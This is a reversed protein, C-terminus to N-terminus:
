PCEPCYRDIMGNVSNHWEWAERKTREYLDEGPGREYGRRILEISGGAESYFEDPVTWRDSPSNWSEVPGLRLRTNYIRDLTTRDGPLWLGRGHSEAWADWGTFGRRRIERLGALIWADSSEVGGNTDRYWARVWGPIRVQLSEQHTRIGSEADLVASIGHDVEKREYVMESPDLMIGFVVYWYDASGYGHAREALALVESLTRLSVWSRRDGHPTYRLVVKGPEDIEVWTVCAPCRIKLGVYVREFRRPMTFVFVGDGPQEVTVAAHDQSCLWQLAKTRLDSFLRTDSESEMIFPKFGPPFYSEGDTFDPWVGPQEGGPDDQPIGQTDYYSASRSGSEWDLASGTGNMRCPKPLVTDPVEKVPHTRIQVIGLERNAHEYFTEPNIWELSEARAKGVGILILFVVVFVALATTAGASFAQM